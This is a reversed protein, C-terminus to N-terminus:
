YQGIRLYKMYELCDNNAPSKLKSLGLILIFLDQRHIQILFDVYSPNDFNADEIMLYAFRAENHQDVDQRCINLHLFRPRQSRLYSIATRIQTNHPHQIAPM